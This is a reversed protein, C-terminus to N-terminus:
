KGEKRDGKGQKHESLIAGIPTPRIKPGMKM